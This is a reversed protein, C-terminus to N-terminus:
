VPNEDPTWFLREPEDDPTPGPEDDPRRPGPSLAKGDPLIGGVLMPTGSPGPTLVENGSSEATNGLPIIGSPRPPFVSTADVTSGLRNSATRLIPVGSSRLRARWFSALAAIKLLWSSM